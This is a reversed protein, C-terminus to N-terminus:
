CCCSALFHHGLILLLQQHKSHLECAAFKSFTRCHQLMSCTKAPTVENCLWPAGVIFPTGSSQTAGRRLAPELPSDPGCRPGTTTQSSCPSPHVTADRNWWKRMAYEVRANTSSREKYLHQQVKIDFKNCIFYWYFVIFFVDM